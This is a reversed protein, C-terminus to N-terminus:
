TATSGSRQANSDQFTPWTILKVLEESFDYSQISKGRLDPCIEQHIDVAHELHLVPSVM